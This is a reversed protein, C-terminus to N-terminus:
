YKGPPINVTVPTDYTKRGLGECELCKFKIFIKEGNCYSCTSRATIHGTRVTEQGTGECYPCVNGTYGLESRSGQGKDCVGVHRCQITVSTGLFAEEFSIKAIYEKTTESGAYTEAFDQHCEGDQQEEEAERSGSGFIKEYMQESTYTSDTTQRGPGESRGGFREEGLGTEDYKRRREEDSLVDYAEAILSFMQRADLTKNTEPHFKKAMNFYAMKIDPLTSTSSVGLITYYDPAEQHLRRVCLSIARFVLPPPKLRIRTLRALAM